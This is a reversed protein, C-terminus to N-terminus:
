ARASPVFTMSPFTSYTVRVLDNAAVPIFIESKCPLAFGSRDLLVILGTGGTIWVHGITRATYVFPTPGVDIPEIPREASLQSIRAFWQYWTEHPPGAGNLGLQRSPLGFTPNDRFDVM